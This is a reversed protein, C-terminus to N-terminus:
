NEKWDEVNHNISEYESQNQFSTPADLAKKAEEHYAYNEEAEHRLEQISSYADNLYIFIENIREIKWPSGHNKRM